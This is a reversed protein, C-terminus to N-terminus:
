WQCLESTLFFFWVVKCYVKKLVCWILNEALLGNLISRWAWVGPLVECVCWFWRVCAPCDCEQERFGEGGCTM